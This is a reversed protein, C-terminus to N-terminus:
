HLPNNNVTANEDMDSKAQPSKLLSYTGGVLSFGVPQELRSAEEEISTSPMSVKQWLPKSSKKQM